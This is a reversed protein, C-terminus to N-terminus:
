QLLCIKWKAWYTTKKYNQQLGLYGYRRVRSITSSPTSQSKGLAAAGARQTGHTLIANLDQKEITNAYPLLEKITLPRSM